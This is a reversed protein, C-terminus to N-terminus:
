VNPSVVCKSITRAYVLVLLLLFFYLWIMPNWQKYPCFFLHFYVIYLLLFDHLIFKCCSPRPLVRQDFCRMSLTGFVRLIYLGQSRLLYFELCFNKWHYNSCQSHNFLCSYLTSESLFTYTVHCSCVTM